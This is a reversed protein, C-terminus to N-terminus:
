EGRGDVDILSFREPHERCASRMLGVVGAQVVDLVGGGGVVVGGETVLVLRSGGLCGVGLFAQLLGLVCEAM